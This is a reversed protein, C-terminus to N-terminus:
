RGVHGAVAADRHPWERAAAVCAAPYLDRYAHAYHVALETKGLGGLGHVATVVGITRPMRLAHNLRTLEDTRGVFYPSFRTLNGVRTEVRAARSLRGTIAAKLADLRAQLREEALWLSGNPYWEQVQTAQGRTIATLWDQHERPLTNPPNVFFIPAISGDDTHGAGVRALLRVQRAAYEQWEWKCPASAFYHEGLCVLLLKSSRLASLIRAQWDQLNDIESADFFVRYPTGELQQSDERLSQVLADVWGQGSGDGMPVNDRRAYSVFVDFEDM